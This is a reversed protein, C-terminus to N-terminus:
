LRKDYTAATNAYPPMKLEQSATLYESGVAITVRSARVIKTLMAANYRVASVREKDPRVREARVRM